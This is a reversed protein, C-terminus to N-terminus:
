YIQYATMHSHKANYVVVVLLLLWFESFGRSTHKMRRTPVGGQLHLRRGERRNHGAAAFSSSPKMSRLRPSFLSLVGLTEKKKKKQREEGM